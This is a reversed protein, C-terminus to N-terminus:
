LMVEKQDKIPSKFASTKSKKERNTFRKLMGDDEILLAVLRDVREIKAKMTGQGLSFDDVDIDRDNQFVM